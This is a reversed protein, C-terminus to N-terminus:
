PQTPSPVSTHDARRLISTNSWRQEHEGGVAWDAPRDDGALDRQEGGLKGANV